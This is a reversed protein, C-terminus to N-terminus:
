KLLMNKLMDLQEKTQIGLLFDDQELNCDKLNPSGVRFDIQGQLKCLLVPSFEENEQKMIIRNISEADNDHMRKTIKLKRAIARIDRKTITHKRQLDDSCGRNERLSKGERLIKHIHDM